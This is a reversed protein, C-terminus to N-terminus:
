SYLGEALSFGEDMDEDVITRPASDMTRRNGILAGSFSSSGTMAVRPRCSGILAELTNSDNSM